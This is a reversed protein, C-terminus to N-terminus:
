YDECKLTQEGWIDTGGIAADRAEMLLVWGAWPFKGPAPCPFLKSGINVASDSDASNPDSMVIM